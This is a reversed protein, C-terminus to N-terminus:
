RCRPRQRGASFPASMFPNSGPKTVETKNYAKLINLFLKLVLPREQLILSFEPGGDLRGVGDLDQSGSGITALSDILADRRLVENGAVDHRDGRAAAFQVEVADDDGAADDDVLGQEGPLAHGNCLDTQLIQHVYTIDGNIVSM